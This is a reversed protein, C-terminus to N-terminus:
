RWYRDIHLSLLSNLLNYRRSIAAFKERVFQKKEEPKPLIPM